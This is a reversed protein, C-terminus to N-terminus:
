EILNGRVLRDKSDYDSEYTKGCKDCYLKIEYDSEDLGTQRNVVRDSLEGDVTIHRCVTWYETRVGKLFKGCDCKPRVYKM